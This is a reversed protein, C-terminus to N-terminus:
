GGAQRPPKTRAQVEEGRVASARALAVMAARRLAPADYGRRALRELLRAEVATAAARWAPMQAPDLRYFTQGPGLAAERALRDVQDFGRGATAAVEADVSARLAQQAAEPLEVLRERRMALVWLRTALAPSLAAPREPPGGLQLHNTLGPDGVMALAGWSLIAAESHADDPGVRIAGLQDLWDALGITPACLRLGSLDGGALPARTHLWLPAEGVALLLTVDGAERWPEGMLLAAAARGTVEGPRGRLPLELLQLPHPEAVLQDLPLWALDVAGSALARVLEGAEMPEAALTVDLGSEPRYGFGQAWRRLVLSVTAHDPGVAYGLRLSDSGHAVAPVALALLLLVHCWKPRM